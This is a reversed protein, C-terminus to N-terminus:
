KREVIVFFTMQSKFAYKDFSRLFLIEVLEYNCRVLERSSQLTLNCKFTNFYLINKDNIIVIKSNVCRWVDHPCFLRHIFESGSYSSIFYLNLM